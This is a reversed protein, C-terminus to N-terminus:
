DRNGRDEEQRDIESMIRYLRVRAEQSDSSYAERYAEDYEENTM